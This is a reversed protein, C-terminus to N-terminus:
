TVCSWTSAIGHQAGAAELLLAGREVEVLPRRVSEDRLEDTRGRHIEEGSTDVSSKEGARVANRDRHRGDGCGRLVATHKQADTGLVEPDARFVFGLCAHAHRQDLVRSGLRQNGTEDPVCGNLHQGVVRQTRRRRDRRRRPYPYPLAVQQRDAGRLDMEEIAGAADAEARLMGLASERSTGARGARATGTM